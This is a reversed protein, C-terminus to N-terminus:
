NQHDLIGSDVNEMATTAVSTASGATNFNERAIGTFHALEFTIAEGHLSFERIVHAERALNSDMVVQVNTHDILDANPSHIRARTGKVLLEVRQQMACWDLHLRRAYDM